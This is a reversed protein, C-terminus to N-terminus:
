NDGGVWRVHFSATSLQHRRHSSERDFATIASSQLHRCIHMNFALATFLHYLHPSVDQSTHITSIWGPHSRLTPVVRDLLSIELPCRKFRCFPLSSHQFLDTWSILGMHSHSPIVMYSIPLEYSSTPTTTVPRISFSCNNKRPSPLSNLPLTPPTYAFTIFLGWPFCIPFLHHVQARGDVRAHGSGAGGRGALV